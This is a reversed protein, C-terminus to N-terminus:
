GSVVSRSSLPTTSSRKATNRKGKTNGSGQGGESAVAVGPIGLAASETGSTSTDLTQVGALQVDTTRSGLSLESTGVPANVTKVIVEDVARPSTSPPYAERICPDSPQSQNSIQHQDSSQSRDITQSQDSAQSPEATDSQGSTQFRDPTQNQDATQSQHDTTQSLNPSTRQPAATEGRTIFAAMSLKPANLKRAPPPNAQIKKIDAVFAPEVCWRPVGGHPQRTQAASRDNDIEDLCATGYCRYSYREISQVYCGSLSRNTQKVRDPVIQLGQLSKNAVNATCLM